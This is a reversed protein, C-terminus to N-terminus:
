PAFLVRGRLVSSFTREGIGIFFKSFLVYLDWCVVLVYVFFVGLRDPQVLDQFLGRIGYVLQSMQAVLRWRIVTLHIFSRM